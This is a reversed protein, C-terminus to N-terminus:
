PHGSQVEARHRMSSAPLMKLFFILVQKDLPIPRKIGLFLITIKYLIRILGLQKQVKLGVM